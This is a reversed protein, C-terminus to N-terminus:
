ELLNFLKDSVRNITNDLVKAYIQTVKIDKHGLMKALAEIPVDNALVVTTAFTHRAIHSSLPKKIGALHAILKLLRNYSQQAYVPLKGSYKDWVQKAPPLMPTYFHTHTKQRDSNIYLRGSHEVIMDATLKNVDAYALGTYCCFVFVDRVRDMAKDNLELSRINTLEDETLAVRDKSKGRIDKFRDYPSRDLLGARIAENVYVKIRKHYNHLTTQEMDPNRKRLWRDFKAINDATLDQIEKIIGSQKLAELACVHTKRTSETIQREAMCDLAFDYFTSPKSSDNKDRHQRFNEATIDEGARQMNILTARVDEVHTNLKRNIEKACPGVAMRNVADWQSPHLEIGSSIFIRSTRSFVVCIEVKGSGTDASKKKRDFVLFLNFKEMQRYKQPLHPFLAIGHSVLQELHYRM